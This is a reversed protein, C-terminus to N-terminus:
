VGLDDRGAVVDEAVDEIKRRGSRAHRRMREFAVTPTVDLRAAIMGKAQEIARHSSLAVQLHEVLEAQEDYLRANDLALAAWAALKEAMRRDADDLTASGSTLLMLLLGVVRGRARMPVMIVSSADLERILELHAEDQAGAERQEIDLTSVLVAEGGRAVQLIGDDTIVPQRAVLRDVIRQGEPGRHM